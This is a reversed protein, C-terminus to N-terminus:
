DLVIPFYAGEILAGTAIKPVAGGGVFELLPTSGDACRTEPHMYNLVIARRPRDSPNGYSGHIMHSHHFTCEGAKVIMPQPRFAEQQEPSLISRLAEMDKLLPLKPLLGWRHSGPVYQLCGNDLNADDLLINCTIHRAPTARTWYSYDQHWAVVGPHRAPKYFVQDHWLRLRPTELLQAAKVTVAPHWLVDHFAEDALWAGLFHFVHRDPAQRYAEDVEYLHALRPNRGLRIAELAERLVEIQRTDLIRGGKVYGHEHFFAAQESSLSWRARDGPRPFLDTIPGHRGQLADAM